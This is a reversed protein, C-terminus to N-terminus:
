VQVERVFNDHDETTVHSRINIIKKNDTKLAKGEKDYKIYKDKYYKQGLEYFTKRPNQVESKHHELFEQLTQIEACGEADAPAKSNKYVGQESEHDGEEDSGGDRGKAELKRENTPAGSDEKFRQM